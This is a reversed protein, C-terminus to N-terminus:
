GKRFHSKNKQMSTDLDYKDEEEVGDECLEEGEEKINNRARKERKNM